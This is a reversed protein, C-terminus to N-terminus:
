LCCVNTAALARSEAQSGGTPRIEHRLLSRQTKTAAQRSLALLIASAQARGGPIGPRDVRVGALVGASGDAHDHEPQDHVHAACRKPPRGTGANRRAIRGARGLRTAVATEHKAALAEGPSRAFRKSS